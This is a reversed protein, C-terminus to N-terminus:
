LAAQAATFALGNGGARKAVYMAADARALLIEVDDADTQLFLAIGISSTIAVSSDDPGVTQDRIFGLLGTALTEAENHGM